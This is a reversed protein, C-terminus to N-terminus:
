SCKSYGCSMCTVCGEQRQMEGADCSPCEEGSVKTGDKIYKKLVRAVSRGFSNMQGKTKELQHVVFDLGAGHRLSLSTLRTITEEEDTIHQSINEFVVEGDHILDYCGRKRKRLMGTEYKKSFHGNKGAFIEYVSGDEWFGVIVFYEQGKSTTHHMECNIEKPRKPADNRTFTLQNMQKDDNVLIGSRCNERYVTIGKCGSEWATQYIKAVEEESVNEPLNVTSSISHDIHKQMASQLKVRNEWNIDNACANNYPSEEPLTKNTVDMWVKFKPHYVTFNQWKVGLKDVFDVRTNQDSADIKKRRTYGLNFVPEVGSSCQALISVSGTPASTLCAINRRGFKQMNDYLSSNENKIQLLFESNKDIDADWIPFSGREQAMMMSSHFAAHKHAKFVEDIFDISEQSGYQINLAALMDGIGTPGLGTRRGLIANKKYVEWMEMETRKISDPEPDSKIKDLIKDIKEIELDVIDDMLRQAKITNEQFLDFDFYANETFPNVVYSYYNQALLRCSDTNLPIEGCNSVNVGGSWFTHSGNDVTIDFVEENSVFKSDKIEYTTKGKSLRRGFTNQLAEMKYKQEFGILKYFIQRDTTINVDYSQKSTYDGNHHSFLTPKNTTYYSRIGLSSLALQLDDVINKSTTKFSVRKGSKIVCGNASYLGRLFSALLEKDGYLYQQPIYREWTPTDFSNVYRMSKVEYAYPNVGDRKRGIYKSVPSDFYDQDKEGIYLLPLNNSAKHVGGDGVILGDMVAQYDIEFPALIPGSLSDISKSQSVEIKEKNNVIKHNETGYFCGSTTRYRYVDKLGNSWKNLIKTWGEESWIEDGIEVDEITRIGEKTIVTAWKPLCPNTGLSKFGPYCDVANYNIIRDWFLLGPEARFWASHIITEWMKKASVMKSVLPKIGKEKYDVPFRLEYDEDNKVANLFEDSLQVSINAGTVKKDDNKITSFIEIDPHHVSICEMLAGRRGSQGVENITNSYREMWTAIGTSSRAANNTVSGTPRLNNLNVGVGGRRKSLQALQEDAKMISGYSDESPENIVFCNSISITQLDNGIGSMPSGQPIIYKFDKLLNYIEEESLPNDYKKEIRAFEKALRKHMKDPTNEYINGDVDKLAYKSVFVNAALEDGNFYELSDNFAQEYTYITNM